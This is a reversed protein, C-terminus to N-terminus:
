FDYESNFEGLSQMVAHEDKECLFKDNFLCLYHMSEHLMTGLLEGANM